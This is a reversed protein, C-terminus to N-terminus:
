LQAALILAGLAGIAAAESPTALGFMIAGLVSFILLALPLFSTALQYFITAYPVDREAKPMPPALSPNILVRIMVYAMYLGALMLGPFFAGAYLQV